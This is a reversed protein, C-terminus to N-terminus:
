SDTDQEDTLGGNEVHLFQRVRIAFINGLLIIAVIKVLDGAIFPILGIALARSWTVDLIVKLYPIGIVYMVFTGALVGAIMFLLQKVTTHDQNSDKVFGIDTIAGALPAALLWSILFGGTPSVFHAFGGIGGSFVPLGIAGLTLYVAVSAIGIGKGGLIGALLVFVTQLTIPIPGIPVAIYSGAVILAAFLAIIIIRRLNM